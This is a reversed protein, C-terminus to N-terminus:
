AFIKLIVLKFAQVTNDFSNYVFVWIALKYRHLGLLQKSKKFSNLNQIRSLVHWNWGHINESTKENHSTNHSECSWSSPSKEWFSSFINGLVPEKLMKREWWTKHDFKKKTGYSCPIAAGFFPIKPGIINILNQKENIHWKQPIAPIHICYLISIDWYNDTGTSGFYLISM